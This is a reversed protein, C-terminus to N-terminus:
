NVLPSLRRVKGKFNKSYVEVEESDDIAKKLTDIESNLKEKHEVCCRGSPSVSWNKYNVKESDQGCSGCIEKNCILCNENWTLKSDCVYCSSKATYIAAATSGVVGAAIILPLM